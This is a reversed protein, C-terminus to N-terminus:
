CGFSVVISQYEETDYVGRTPTTPLNNCVQRVHTSQEHTVLTMLDTDEALYSLVLGGGVVTCLNNLTWINRGERKSVVASGMATVNKTGAANVSTSQHHIMNMMRVTRVVFSMKGEKWKTKSAVIFQKKKM